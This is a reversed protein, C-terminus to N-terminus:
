LAIEVIKYHLWQNIETLLHLFESAFHRCLVFALYYNWSHGVSLQSKIHQVKIDDDINARLCVWFSTFLIACINNMLYVSKRICQLATKFPNFCDVYWFYWSFFFIWNFIIAVQIAVNRSWKLTSYNILISSIEM